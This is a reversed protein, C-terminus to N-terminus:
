QPCHRLHAGFHDRTHSHHYQWGEQDESPGISFSLPVVQRDGGLGATLFLLGAYPGTAFMCRLLLDTFHHGSKRTDFIVLVDHSRM